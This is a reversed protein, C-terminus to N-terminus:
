LNIEEVVNGYVVFVRDNKNPKITYSGTLSGFSPLLFCNNSFYFCPLKVRQRAKGLLIVNPHVHGAFVIKEKNDEISTHSYIFHEDELYEDVLVVGIRAFFSSDITDHNGKVLTFETGSFANIFNEFHM